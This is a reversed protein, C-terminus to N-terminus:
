LLCIIDIPEIPGRHSEVVVTPDGYRIITSRYYKDPRRAGPDPVWSGLGSRKRQNIIGRVPGRTYNWLLRLPDTGSSGVRPLSLKKKKQNTKRRYVVLRCPGDLRDVVVGGSPLVFRLTSNWTELIEVFDYYKRNGYLFVVPLEWFVANWSMGYGMVFGVLLMM